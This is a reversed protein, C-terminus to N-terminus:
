SSRCSARARARVQGAVDREHNGQGLLYPVRNALGSHVLRSDYIGWKLQYGAASHLPLVRARPAVHVVPAPPGVRMADCRM